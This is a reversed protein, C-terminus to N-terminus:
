ELWFIVRTKRNFLKRNKCGGKALQLTVAMEESRTNLIDKKKNLNEENLIIKENFHDIRDETAQEKEIMLNYLDHELKRVSALETRIESQLEIAKVILEERIKQVKNEVTQDEQLQLQFRRM